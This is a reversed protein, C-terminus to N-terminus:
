SHEAIQEPLLRDEPDTKAMLNQSESQAARGVLQLESMVAAIMRNQIDLAVLDLDRRLIVAEGHIRVAQIQIVDFMVCM